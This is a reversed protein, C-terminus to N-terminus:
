KETRQTNVRVGAHALAEIFGSVRAPRDEDLTPLAISVSMYIPPPARRIM